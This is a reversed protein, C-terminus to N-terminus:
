KLASDGKNGGDRALAIDRRKIPYVVSDPSFGMGTFIMLIKKRFMTTIKQRHDM